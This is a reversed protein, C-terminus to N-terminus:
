GRADRRPIRCGSQLATSKRWLDSVPCRAPSAHVERAADLRSRRHLWRFTHLRGILKEPNTRMSSISIPVWSKLDLKASSAPGWLHDRRRTFPSTRHTHIPSLTPTCGFPDICIANLSVAGAISKRTTCSRVAAQPCRVTWGACGSDRALQLPLARRTGGYKSDRRVHGLEM